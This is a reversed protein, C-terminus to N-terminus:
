NYEVLGSEIEVFINMNKYYAILVPNTSVRCGQVDGHNLMCSLFIKRGVRCKYGPNIHAQMCVLFPRVNKWSNTFNRRKKKKKLEQNRGFRNTLQDHFYVLLKRLWKHIKTMSFDVSKDMCAGCLVKLIKM